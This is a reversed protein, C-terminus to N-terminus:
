RRRCACKFKPSLIPRVDEHTLIEIGFEHLKLPLERKSVYKWKGISSVRTSDGYTLAAVRARPHGIWDRCVGPNRFSFVAEGLRVVKPHFSIRRGWEPKQFQVEVHSVDCYPPAGRDNQGPLEIAREVRSESRSHHLRRAFVEPKKGGGNDHHHVKRGVHVRLTRDIRRVVIEAHDGRLPWIVRGRM